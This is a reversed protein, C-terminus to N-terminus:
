LADRAPTPIPWRDHGELPLTFIFTVGGGPTDEIWIRGGHAEILGKCVVLGLGSGHPAHRRELRYFKDFIRPREDVPIGPGQDSVSVQLEDAHIHAAIRIATQPPTYKVANELLNSFVQDIAMYDLPVPPLNDAMDLSVHHQTTLPVLREVVARAVERIPYPEKKVQLMGAEIRSLDLLNSILRNLRDMEREVTAAFERQAEADWAIDEQLLSSATAKIVALPTRLDHSVSNLLATRLEDTRRLIEAQTAAERLRNREVALGLQSAVAVLLRDKEVTL